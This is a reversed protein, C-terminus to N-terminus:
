QLQAFAEAFVSIGRGTAVADHHRGVRDPKQMRVKAAIPFAIDRHTGKVLHMGAVVCQLSLEPHQDIAHMVPALLGYEARTGTVVAISRLSSVLNSQKSM